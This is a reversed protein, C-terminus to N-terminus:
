KFCRFLIYMLFFMGVFAALVVYISTAMYASNLAYIFWISTSLVSVAETRGVTRFSKISQAVGFVMFLSFFLAIAFVRLDENYKRDCYIIISSTLLSLSMGFFSLIVLEENEAVLSNIFFSVSAILYSHLSVGHAGGFRIVKVIQSSYGSFVLLVGVFFSPSFSLLESM